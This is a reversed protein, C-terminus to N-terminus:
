DRAFGRRREFVQRLINEVAEPDFPKPLYDDLGAALFRERDGRIAHATLAIVPLDPPCGEVRGARIHETAQVGDMKPMQMDMLVVDFRETSLARLAEEGNGVVVADHGLLTLVEEAFIRNLPNDEAVLVRLPEVSLGPRSSKAEPAFRETEPLGFEATFRLCSGKGPESEAWLRGGMLEVLQKSISLGLGTGGYKAHTSRTAQSFADFITSLNESPIGIGTDRVAFLLRVHGPAAKESSPQVTVEVEGSGTFKIANGVLNTLVQRLRGEDGFILTPLKPDLRHALTLGKGQASVGLTGLVNGVAARLDFPKEDLEVRGAEIRAIDLIDNIIELLGQASQKSYNLFERARQPLGPDMLALDTMGMIGNMPTRIEHSMRALFDSKARNSAEAAEKAERLEEEVRKRETIDLQALVAGQVAGGVRFPIGNMLLTHDNGQGDTIVYEVDYVAEGTLARSSPMNAPTLPQGDPFRAKLRQATEERTTQTPDFGFLNIVTQNVRLYRGDMGHLSVLYPLAQFIADLKAAGRQVDAFLREREEEARKRTTIDQVTGRLGAIRGDAGRVVECRTTIWIPVGACLAEVDLEYGRGTRVTEQVAANLREWEDAPYLRGKQERFDPMRQTMPDLGYIRLLEDSGTTVDTQADWYWSGFHAIRQAEQLEAEMKWLAELNQQRAAAIQAQTEAERTRAQARHMAEAIWSIMAGSLLFFATAFWDIPQGLSFQGIPAIFFFSTLAVSLATALLGPGLGGYLAAVAVAPFFTVYPVRTGLVPLFVVRLAASAIVVAIAVGYRYHAKDAAQGLTLVRESSTRVSALAAILMYVGGLYQASRCAWDLASNRTSQIMMGFLAVAILLLACTYWHAFSSRSTRNAMRLLLAALVFMAISSGLVLHRVLTGGQGQVFFVPLWGEFAGLTVLGVAGLASAYSAAMWPGTPRITRKSRVSFLAGALHCLASLWNGLNSITVGLNADRMVVSTTVFGAAGWIAVGCGLLLFGPEGRASFSHGALYVILLSALTRTLFNLAMVLSPSDYVTQLDALWLAVIVALLLPIPIWALRNLWAKGPQSDPHLFEDPDQALVDTAGIRRM